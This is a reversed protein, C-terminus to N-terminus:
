KGWPPSVRYTMTEAAGRSPSALGRIRIGALEFEPADDFRLIPM